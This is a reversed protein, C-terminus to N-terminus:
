AVDIVVAREFLSEDLSAALENLTNLADPAGGILETIKETVYTQTAYSADNTLNSLSINTLNSGDGSFSAYVTGSLHMDKYKQTSSGISHEGSSKPLLNGSVEVNGDSSTLYSSNLEINNSFTSKESSVLKNEALSTQGSVALTGNTEINKTTM